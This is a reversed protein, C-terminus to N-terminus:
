APARAWPNTPSPLSNETLREGDTGEIRPNAKIWRAIRAEEEVTAKAEPRHAVCPFRLEADAQHETESPVNAYPLIDAQRREPIAKRHAVRVDVGVDTLDAQAERDVSALVKAGLVGAGPVKAGPVKNQQGGRDLTM